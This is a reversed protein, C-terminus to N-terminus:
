FCPGLCPTKIKFTVKRARCVGWNAQSPAILAPMSLAAPQRYRGRVGDSEDERRGLAAAAAANHHGRPHIKNM